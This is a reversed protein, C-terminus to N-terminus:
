ARYKLKGGVITILVPIQKLTRTDATLPNAGLVVLDAQKGPEITGKVREEFGIKAANATYLTLAEFVTLRRVEDPHNVVAHIGLLPGLEGADADSGGAILIGADWIKRYPHRRKARESGLFRANAFQYDDLAGTEPMLAFNPQMAAVVGLRAAREIHQPMPLSFHEIRHRHDAKPYRTLAREYANLLQEIAADGIAHMSIQLGALHAREVFANLEEDTFYLVGRTTPDDAYPELLAATHEGYAGDVLVCGGICPLNWEKARRVDTSQFYLVTKAPLRSQEQLLVRAEIEPRTPQGDGSRGELAHITTIGYTLAHEAARHLAAVRTSDPIEDEARGAAIRNAVAVLMGTPEGTSLTRVGATEPPLGLSEFALSNVISAHGGVDRITVARGPAARDLGLRTVPRDITGADYGYVVLAQGSEMRSAADAVLTMVADASTLGVASPGLLSLGAHMLHFHTDIFGPLLTEGALSIVETGPAALADIEENSGVAVIIGNDIAIAQADSEGTPRAMTVVRVDRIITRANV